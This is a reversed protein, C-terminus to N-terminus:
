KDVEEQKMGAPEDTGKVACNHWTLCVQDCVVRSERGKFEDVQPYPGDSKFNWRLLWRRGPLEKGLWHLWACKGRDGRTM